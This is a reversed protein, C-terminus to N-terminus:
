RTLKLDPQTIPFGIEFLLIFRVQTIPHHHLKTAFPKGWTNLGQIQCESSCVFLFSYLNDIPQELKDRLLRTEMNGTDLTKMRM